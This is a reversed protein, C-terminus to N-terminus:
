EPAFAARASGLGSIRVEYVEGPEV